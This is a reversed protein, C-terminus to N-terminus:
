SSRVRLFAPKARQLAVRALHRSVSPGKRDAAREIVTPGGEGRGPFLRDAGDERVQAACVHACM